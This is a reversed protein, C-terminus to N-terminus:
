PATKRLRYFRRPATAGPDTVWAMQNQGSISQLVTWNHLSLNTTAEFVFNTSYNPLGFRATAVGNSRSFDSLWIGAQFYFYNTTSPTHLPGGGPGNSSTDLLQLGVVYLGPKNVTIRRNHIHGYPDSNPDMPDGSSLNLRAQGNTTGVPVSLMVPPNLPNLNEDWITLAGGAPGQLSVFRLEIYTGISAADPDPIGGSFFTAALGVFTTATQFQEPYVAPYNDDLYICAPSQTYGGNSNIDWDAGNKFWLPTGPQPSYPVENSVGAYIHIHSITQASASLCL